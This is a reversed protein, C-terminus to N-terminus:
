IKRRPIEPAIYAPTGCQDKMVISEGIIKSIGFDCIKVNNGKTLLINDLKLDHHLISKSHLHGLGHVIQRFIPKAEIESLYKHKNVYDLLDGNDAFEMVILFHRSSEFVELLRIVNPHRIKKLIYVERFVKKRSAEDKMLAKEIGKIAVYKGTLKHIGLM